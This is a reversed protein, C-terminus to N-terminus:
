LEGYIRTPTIICDLQKDHPEAFPDAAAEILQVDWALGVAKTAPHQALWRDYYGGGQGLRDGAQTFGVLPVFLVNPTVRAASQAPQAIGFPGPVLDTLAFPDTHERFVMADTDHAIQPLAITFGAEKFFRAYGGAPAEHGTACYLGIIADEGLAKVIPTPPRNFLLARVIEPQALVHEKRATRLRKRLEQKSTM